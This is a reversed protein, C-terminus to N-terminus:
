ASGHGVPTWCATLLCLAPQALPLRLLPLAPLSPPLSALLAPVLSCPPCARSLLPARPHRPVPMVVPLARRASPPPISCCQALSQTAGFKALVASMSSLLSSVKACELAQPNRRLAPQARLTPGRKLADADMKEQRVNVRARRTHSHTLPPRASPSPPRPRRPFLRSFLGLSSAFPPSLCPFSVSRAPPRDQCVGRCLQDRSAAMGAAFLGM